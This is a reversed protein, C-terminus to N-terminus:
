PTGGNPVRGPVVAICAEFLSRGDRWEIAIECQTGSLVAAAVVHEPTIWHLTLECESSPEVIGEEVAEPLGSGMAKVYAEKLVWLEFFRRTREQAPLSSLHTRENKSFFHRAVQEVDVRQSACEADIGVAAVRSVICVALGATHTVNFHLSAFEAPETIVPKGNQTERFWWRSPDVRAYHSLAARCLAHATLFEHKLQASGLQRYRALEDSGLWALCRSALEHPSLDNPSVHWAHAARSLEYM